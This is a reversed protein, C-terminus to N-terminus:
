EGEVEIELGLLDLPATDPNFGMQAGLESMMEDRKAAARKKIEDMKSKQAQEDLDVGQSAFITRAFRHERDRITKILGFVEEQTLNDELEAINKWGGLSL